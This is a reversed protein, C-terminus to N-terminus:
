AGGIICLPVGVSYLDVSCWWGSALVSVAVDVVDGGAESEVIKSAEPECVSKDIVDGNTPRAGQQTGECQQVLSKVLEDGPYSELYRKLHGLVDNRPQV